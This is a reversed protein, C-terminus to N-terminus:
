VVTFVATGTLCLCQVCPPASIIPPTGDSESTPICLRGASRSTQSPCMRHTEILWKQVAGIHPGLQQGSGIFIERKGGGKEKREEEREMTCSLVKPFVMLNLKM